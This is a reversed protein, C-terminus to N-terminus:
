ALLMAATKFPVFVALLCALRKVQQDMRQLVDIVLEEDFPAIQGIV